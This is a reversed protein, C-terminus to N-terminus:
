LLAFFINHMTSLLLINRKDIRMASCNKFRYGTNHHTRNNPFIKASYINPVFSKNWQFTKGFQLIGLPKYFMFNTFNNVKEM